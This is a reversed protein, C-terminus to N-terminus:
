KFKFFNLIDNIFSDTYEKLDKAKKKEENDKIKNIEDESITTGGIIWKLLIFEEGDENVCLSPNSPLSKKNIEELSKLIELCIRGEIYKFFIEKEEKTYIDDIKDIFGTDVDTLIDKLESIKKLKIGVFFYISNIFHLEKNHIISKAELIRYELNEELKGEGIYKIIDDGFMNSEITSDDLFRFM